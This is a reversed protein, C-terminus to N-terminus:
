LEKQETGSQRICSRSVERHFGELLELHSLLDEVEAGILIKPHSHDQQLM